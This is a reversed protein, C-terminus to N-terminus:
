GCEGQRHDGVMLACQLQLSVNRDFLYANSVEVRCAHCVQAVCRKQKMYKRNFFESM